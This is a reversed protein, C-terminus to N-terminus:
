RGVADLEDRILKQIVGTEDLVMVERSLVPGLPSHKQLAMTVLELSNWCEEMIHLDTRGLRDTFDRRVIFDMYSRSELIAFKGRQVEAYAWPFSPFITYWKGLNRYTEIPSEVFDSTINFSNAVNGFPTNLKALELFSIRVMMTLNSPPFLIRGAIKNIPESMVTVTLFSKLTGSYGFILLTVGLM